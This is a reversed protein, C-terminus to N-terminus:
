LYSYLCKYIAGYKLSFITYNLLMLILFNTKFAFHIIIFITLDDSFKDVSLLSFYYCAFLETLSFDRRGRFPHIIFYLSIMLFVM